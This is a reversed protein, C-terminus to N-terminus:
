ENNAEFNIKYYRIINEIPFLFTPPNAILKDQKIFKEPVQSESEMGRIQERAMWGTASMTSLWTDLIDMSLNPNWQSIIINHFGEDWLFGRAFFSRSPSASLLGKKDVAYRFGKHWKGDKTEELNINIKGHYYGVGGLLNSLAHKSMDELLNKDKDNRIFDFDNNIKFNKLFNKHFEEQKQQILSDLDKTKEMNPRTSDFNINIKFPPTLILQIALINAQKLSNLKGFKAYAWPEESEENKKTQLYVKNESLESKRLEESIFKKVRWTDEYRKRYKQYSRGGMKNNEDLNIKFYFSEKEQEYGTIVDTEPNYQM